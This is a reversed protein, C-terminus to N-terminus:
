ITQRQENEYKYKLKSLIPVLYDAKAWKGIQVKIEISYPSFLRGKSM